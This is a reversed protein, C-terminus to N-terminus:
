MSLRMSLSNLQGQSNTHTKSFVNDLTWRATSVKVGRQIAYESLSNGEFLSKALTLETPTLQYFTEYFSGPFKLNVDTQDILAIVTLEKLSNLQHDDFVKTLTLKFPLEGSPRRIFGNFESRISDECFERLISSSDKDEFVLNHAERGVGDALEVIKKARQNAKLIKRHTDLYFVAIGRQCMIENFTNVM